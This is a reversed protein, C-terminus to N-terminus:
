FPNIKNDPLAEGPIIPFGMALYQPAVLDGHNLRPYRSEPPATGNM